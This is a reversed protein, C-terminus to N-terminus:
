VDSEGDMEEDAGNEEADQPSRRPEQRALEQSPGEDTARLGRVVRTGPGVHKRQGAAQQTVCRVWVKQRLRSDNERLIAQEWKVPVGELTLSFTPRQLGSRTIHQCSIMKVDDSPWARRMEQQAYSGDECANLGFGPGYGYVRVLTRPRMVQTGLGAAIKQRLEDPVPAPGWVTVGIRGQRGGARLGAFWPAEQLKACADATTVKSEAPLHIWVTTTAMSEPAPKGVWFEVGPCNGSQRVALRLHDQQLDMAVELTDGPGGRVSMPPKHRLPPQLADKLHNWAVRCGWRTADAKTRNPPLGDEVELRKMSCHLRAIGKKESEAVCELTQPEKDEPAHTACWRLLLRYGPPWVAPGPEVPEWQSTRSTATVSLHTGPLALDGRSWGAPQLLGEITPAAAPHGLHM